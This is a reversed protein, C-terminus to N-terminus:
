RGGGRDSEERLYWQGGRSLFRTRKGRFLHASITGSPVKLGEAIEGPRAGPHEAIFAAVDDQSVQAVLPEGAMAARARRLRDREAVLAQRDALEREVQELRRDIEGLIGRSTGPAQKAM